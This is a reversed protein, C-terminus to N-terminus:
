IGKEKKIELPCPHGVPKNIKFNKKTKREIEMKMNKKKKIDLRQKDTRKQKKTGAHKKKKLSGENGRINDKIRLPRNSAM